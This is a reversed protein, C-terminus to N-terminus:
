FLFYPPFFLLLLLLLLPSIILVGCRRRCAEDDAATARLLDSMKMYKSLLLGGLFRRAPPRKATREGAYDNALRLVLVFVSFKM